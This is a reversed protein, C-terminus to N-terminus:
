IFSKRKENVQRYEVCEKNKREANEDILQIKFVIKRQQTNQIPLCVDKYMFYEM